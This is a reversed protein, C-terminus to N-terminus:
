TEAATGPTRLNENNKGDGKLSFGYAVLPNKQRRLKDDYEYM